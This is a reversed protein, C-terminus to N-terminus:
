AERQEEADPQGAAERQGATPRHSPYVPRRPGTQDLELRSRGEGAQVGQRGPELSM